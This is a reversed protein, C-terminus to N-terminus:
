YIHKFQSMNEIARFSRLNWMTGKCVWNGLRGLVHCEFKIMRFQIRFLLQYSTQWPMDLLPVDQQMTFRTQSKKQVLKWNICCSCCASTEGPFGWGQIWNGLCYEGGLLQPASLSCGPSNNNSPYSYLSDLNQQDWCPDTLTESLDQYLSADLQLRSVLFVIKLQCGIKPCELGLYLVKWRWYNRLYDQLLKAVWVDM